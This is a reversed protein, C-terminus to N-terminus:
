CSQLQSREVDIKEKMTQCVALTNTRWTQLENEALTTVNNITASYGLDLSDLESLQLSANNCDACRKNCLYRIIFISHLGPISIRSQILTLYAQLSAELQQLLNKVTSLTNNTASSTNPTMLDSDMSSMFFVSIVTLPIPFISRDLCFILLFSTSCLLISSYSCFLTPLCCIAM